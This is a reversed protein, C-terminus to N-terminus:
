KSIGYQSIKGSVMTDSGTFDFKIADNAETQRLQHSVASNLTGADDVRWWSIKGELHSQKSANMANSLFMVGNVGADGAVNSTGISGAGNGAQLAMFANSDTGHYYDSSGTRYSGGNTQLVAQLEKSDTTPLVGSFVFAYTDYSTTMGTFAVSSVSSITTTTLLRWGGGLTFTGSTPVTITSGGAPDKVTSVLLTSM